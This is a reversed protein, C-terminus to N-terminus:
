EEPTKESKNGVGTHGILILHIQVEEEVLDDKFSAVLGLYTKETEPFFFCPLM